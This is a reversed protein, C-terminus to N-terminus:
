RVIQPLLISESLTSSRVLDFSEGKADYTPAPDADPTWDIPEGNADVTLSPTDSTALGIDFSMTFSENENLIGDEGLAAAPVAVEADVGGPGGTANLVVNGDDLSVITFYVDALTIETVNTFSAEVHYVGAPADAQPTPDYTGSLSTLKLRHNISPNQLVDDVYYSPEGLGDWAGFDVFASTSGAPVDITQTYHETSGDPWIFTMSVDFEQGLAGTDDFYVRELDPDLAVSSQEGPDLVVGDIEFIISPDQDSVPDYSIYIPPAAETKQARFAIFDGNPSVLVELFEDPDLTIDDVGMVYGAGTMSLSGKSVADITKGSIFVTYITEDEESFPVEIRPPIELGLGGQAYILRADPIENIDTETDFAYGTSQDEDNVVLIAGEGAYQFSIKGEVMGTTSTTVDTDDYCFPCDWHQGPQLDRASLPFIALGGSTDGTATGFYVDPDEGPTAATEYRWTNEDTNVPIYQRQLPYNNDYVLIRSESDSVKEIGYAAISHGEKYGPMKFIAVTYPISPTKKFDTILRNMIEVASGVIREGYAPDVSQTLFYHAIFNEISPSPFNLDSTKQAGNQYDAPTSRGKYPAEEFLRLSTAALGDCHGFNMDAIQAVMWKQAPGTLVCTAATNGSQCADAGFLIYMDDAALDDSFNRDAPRDNTYNEFSFSDIKVDFARGDANKYMAVITSPAEVVTRVADAFITPGDADGDVTYQYIQNNDNDINTGVAVDSAVNVVLTLTKSANAALSAVAFEVGNDGELFTGGSVYTANTPIVSFVGIETIPKNTLNKLTLVYTIDNDPTVYTPAAVTLSIAPIQALAVSALQPLLLGGCILITMLAIAINTPFLRSKYFM